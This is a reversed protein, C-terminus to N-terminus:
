RFSELSAVRKMTALLLTNLLKGSITGYHFEKAVTVDAAYGASLDIAKIYSGYNFDSVVLTELIGSFRDM